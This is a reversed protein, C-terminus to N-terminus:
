IINKMVFHRNNYIVEKINDIISKKFAIANTIEDKKKYRYKNCKLIKEDDINKKYEEPNKLINTLMLIDNDISGSLSVVSNPFYSHINKCIRHILTLIFIEFLFM